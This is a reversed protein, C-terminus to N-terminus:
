GVVGLLQPIGGWLAVPKDASQKEPHGVATPMKWGAGGKGREGVLGKGNGCAHALGTQQELERVLSELRHVVQGNAHLESCAHDGDVALLDLKLDPVRSPLLSESRDCARIVASSSAGQQHVVDRSPLGEVVQGGPQLIRTLVRVRVHDNHQYAVLAIQIRPTLHLFLLALGEGALVSQDEHLSRRACSGVYLLREYIRGFLNVLLDLFTDEVDVILCVANLDAM